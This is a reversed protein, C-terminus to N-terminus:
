LDRALAAAVDPDGGLRLWDLPSVTRDAEELDSHRLSLWNAAALLPLDPPMARAVVAINPVLSSGEFQAPLALWRGGVKTAVLERRRLMKRVREVPIGLRDAVDTTTLCTALLRANAAITRARAQRYLAKDGRSPIAGFIVDPRAEDQEAM